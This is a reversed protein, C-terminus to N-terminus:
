LDNRIGVGVPQLLKGDNSRAFYKITYLKGVISSPNQLWQARTEFSEAPRVTYVVGDNTQVNVLACNQERGTAPCVGTVVGECNSYNKVKLLNASRTHAYPKDLKRLMLGEYGNQVYLNHYTNIDDLCTILNYAIIILNKMQYKSSILSNYANMLIQARQIYPTNNSDTPAIDFIHYQLCSVDTHQDVSRSARSNIEQLSMGHCYIEGDLVWNGPLYKFLEVCDAKIHDLSKYQKKGRTVMLGERSVACRVGDLKPQAGLCNFDLKTNDKLTQACMLNKGQLPDIEHQREHMASVSCNYGGRIYKLLTSRALTFAQYSPYAQSKCEVDNPYVQVEGNVYGYATVLKNHQVNFGICWHYERGIGTTRYLLPLVWSINHDLVSSIETNTIDFDLSTYGNFVNIVGSNTTYSVM